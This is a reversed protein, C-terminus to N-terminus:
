IGKYKIFPNTESWGLVAMNTCRGWYGDLSNDGKNGNGIMSWPDWANVYMTNEIDEDENEFINPIRGCIFEKNKFDYGLIEINEKNFEDMLVLFSPEFIDEIFTAQYPGAFNGGGVNYIQLKFKNKNYKEKLHKVSELALKWMANYANIIDSIPRGSFYIRDPQNLCDFAYGILNIVHVDIYGRIKTKLTAHCYVAINPM